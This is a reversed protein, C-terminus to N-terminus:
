GVQGLIQLASQAVALWRATAAAVLDGASAPDARGDDLRSAQLTIAGRPDIQLGRAGALDVLDFREAAGDWARAEVTGDALFIEIELPFSADGDRLIAAEDLPGDIRYDVVGSGYVYPQFFWDLSEGTSEELSRQFDRTTPHRWRWTDAYARMAASFRPEGLTRELSLLALSGKGYATAGYVTQDAFAWAPQALRQRLAATVFQARQLSEYGMHLFPLDIVSREAGYLQALTRITLYDAFGEDLWPEAAENSQVQMPFWQHAIEHITIIELLRPLDGSGFPARPNSGTTTLMPYEMGGAGEAGAPPVVLTLRPWPYTGYWTSMLDLASAAADLHREARDTEQPPILLEIEVPTGAVTAQRSHVQFSPWATWAVDTVRDARYRVTQRGAEETKADLRVGTAGTKFADPVHLTLDYSGFDHFFEANAHWPETDWQGRDYVALKPYWQGVMFFNDLFGTRAFVRPLQATWATELSLTAGPSLPEPLAVRAITDWTDGADPLTLAPGGDAIALREVRIWGPQRPDYSDGRFGVGAERLWTTEPSRFANLYLHLWIETLTDPSPNRYHIRGRGHVQKATADLIAELEYSAVDFQPPSSPNSPQARAPLVLLLAVLLTGLFSVGRRM